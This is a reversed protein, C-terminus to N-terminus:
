RPSGAGRSRAMLTRVSRVALVVAFMPLLLDRIEYQLRPLGQSVIYRLELPASHIPRWDAYLRASSLPWLYAVGSGYDTMMDLLGHTAAAAGVFTAAALPRVGLQKHLCAALLGEMLAFALSHMAGRHAYVSTSPLRWLTYTLADLDPAAAAIAAALVLKRRIPTQGAAIAIAVPVLAHTTTLPMPSSDGAHLQESNGHSLLLLLM